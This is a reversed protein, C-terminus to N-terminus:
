RGRPRAHIRGGLLSDIAVLGAVATIALVIIRGTGGATSGSLAGLAGLAKDVLALLGSGWRGGEGGDDGIGGFGTVLMAMLYIAALAGPVVFRRTGARAPAPAPSPSTEALLRAMVDDTFGESTRATSRRAAGEIGRALDAELRCAPCGDLHDRMAAHETPDLAGDLFEYLRENTPHMMM